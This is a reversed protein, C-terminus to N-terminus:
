SGFGQATLNQLDIVEYYSILWSSWQGGSVGSVYVARTKTRMM